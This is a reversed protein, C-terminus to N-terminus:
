FSATNESHLTSGSVQTIAGSNGGGGNAAVGTLSAVNLNGLSLAWTNAIPAGTGGAVATVLGSASGSLSLDNVDNVLVAGSVNGLVVGAFENAGTLLAPSNVTTVGG